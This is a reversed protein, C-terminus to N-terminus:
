CDLQICEGTARRVTMIRHVHHYYSSGRTFALVSKPVLAVRGPSVPMIRSSADFQNEEEAEGALMSHLVEEKDDM